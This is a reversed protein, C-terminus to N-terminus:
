LSDLKRTLFKFVSHSAGVKRKRRKTEERKSREQFVSSSNGCSHILIITHLNTIAQISWPRPKVPPETIWQTDEPHPHDDYKRLAKHTGPLATPALAAAALPRPGTGAEHLKHETLPPVKLFVFHALDPPFGPRWSGILIPEQTSKRQETISLTRRQGSCQFGTQANNNPFSM